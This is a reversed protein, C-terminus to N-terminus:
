QELYTIWIIQTATNADINLVIFDGTAMGFTNNNPNLQAFANNAVTPNVGVMVRNANATMGGSPVAYLNYTRTNGSKNLYMGSLYLATKGMPVTYLTNDGTAPTVLFATNIQATADFEVLSVTISLGAGSTNVSVIQGASFVLAQGNGAGMSVDYTNANITTAAAALSYYTGSINVQMTASLSGATSNSGRVQGAAIAAKRGSPVTYLDVDGSGVSIFNTSPFTVKPVPITPGGLGFSILSGATLSNGAAAYFPFQGAAGTGIVGIVGTTVSSPWLVFSGLLLAVGIIPFLKRM